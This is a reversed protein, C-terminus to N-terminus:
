SAGSEIKATEDEQRCCGDDLLKLPLQLSSIPLMLTELSKETASCISKEGGEKEDVLTIVGTSIKSYM